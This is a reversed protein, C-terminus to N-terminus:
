PTRLEGVPQLAGKIEYENDPDTTAVRLTFVLRDGVQWDPHLEEPLPDVSAGVAEIVLDRSPEGEDWEGNGNRDAYAEAAYRHVRAAGTQRLVNMGPPTWTGHEFDVLAWSAQFEVNESSVFSLRRGDLAEGARVPPVKAFPGELSGPGAMWYWAGVALVIVMLAGGMVIPLVNIPSSDDRFRM